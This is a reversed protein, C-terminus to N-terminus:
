PHPINETGVIKIIEETTDVIFHAGSNELEKRPRFGWTVGISTAGCNSATEMDVGSDGIYLTEEPSVGAIELINYVITPDPKIPVGERQGFVAAFIIDPFYHRILKETASQPKNSAIALQLGESQLTSLLDCVGNYPETYDTNHADYYSLLFDKLRAINQETKQNEPLCRELLRNIGNGVFFKYTDISHVPFGCHKLAYNASHALDSITNLITGDLDFVVLKVHQMM